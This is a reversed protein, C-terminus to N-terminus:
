FGLAYLFLVWIIFGLPALIVLLMIVGFFNMVKCAHYELSYKRIAHVDGFMGHYYVYEPEGHANPKKYFGFAYYLFIGIITGIIIASM